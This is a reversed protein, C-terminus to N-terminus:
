VIMMGDAQTPFPIHPIELPKGIVSVLNHRYPLYGFDYNWIGRGHFLPSSFGFLDKLKDQIKRILTGRENPYQSFLSNEGLIFFM